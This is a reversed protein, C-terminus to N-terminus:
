VREEKEHDAHLLMGFEYGLKYYHHTNNDDKVGHHFGDAVGDKFASLVKHEKIQKDLEILNM